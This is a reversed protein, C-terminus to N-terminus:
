FRWGIHVTPLLMYRNQSFRTDSITVDEANFLYQASVWPTVYLDDSIVYRYGLRPGLGYLNRNSSEGTEELRYRMRYYTADVGIFWESEQDFLFYDGKLTVGRARIDFEDDGHAWDPIDGAFIGAQLRKNSGIAQHAVHASYGSALYTFPDVEVEWQAFASPSFLTISLAVLLLRKLLM